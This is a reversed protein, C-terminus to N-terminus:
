KRCQEETSVRFGTRTAKWLCPHSHISQDGESFIRQAVLLSPWKKHHLELTCTCNTKKEGGLIINM